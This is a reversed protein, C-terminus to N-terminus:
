EKNQESTGMLGGNLLSAFLHAGNKCAFDAIWEQEPSSDDIFRYVGWFAAHEDSVDCGSTITGGEDICARVEYMPYTPLKTCVTDHPIRIDHCMFHVFVTEAVEISVQNDLHSTVDYAFCIGGGYSTILITQGEFQSIVTAGFWDECYNIVDNDDTDYQAAFSVAGHKILIKALDNATAKTYSTM